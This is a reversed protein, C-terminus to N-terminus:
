GVPPVALDDPGTAGNYHSCDGDAGCRQCTGSPRALVPFRAGPSWRPSRRARASRPSGGGGRRARGHGARIRRPTRARGRGTRPCRGLASHVNPSALPSAPGSARAPAVASEGDRAGRLMRRHKLHLAFPARPLVRVQPRGSLLYLTTKGRASAKFERIYCGTDRQRSATITACIGPVIAACPSPCFRSGRATAASLGEPRGSVWLSREGQRDLAPGLAQTSRQAGALLDVKRGACSGTRLSPKVVTGSRRILLSREPRRVDEAGRRAIRIRCMLRRGAV